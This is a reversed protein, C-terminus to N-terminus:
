SLSVNREVLPFNSLLPGCHHFPGVAAANAEVSHGLSALSGDGRRRGVLAPTSGARRGVLTPPVLMSWTSQSRQHDRKEARAGERVTKASSVFAEREEGERRQPRPWLSQPM